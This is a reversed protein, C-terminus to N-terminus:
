AAPQEPLTRLPRLADVVAGLDEHGVRDAATRRVFLEGMGEDVLAPGAHLPEDVVEAQVEGENRAEAAM